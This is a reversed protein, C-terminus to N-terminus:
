TPSTAPARILQNLTAAFRAFDIPKPVHLQFGAALAHRRDEESALATLAMAPVNADAESGLGRIRRILSYGDEEPMAIDCVLVQPHFDEFIRMAESASSAARADAESIRLMEMLAERTGLDDEVVLVRLNRLSAMIAESAAADPQLGPPPRSGQELLRLSVTFTSGQGKGASDAHVTGGHGEVLHRVIALGLGLGGHARTQRHDEQVFRDFVQSLFLPEIGAGTDAVRIQAWGDASDVSVTVRGGPPTFKVANTLLNTVVQQLRMPDGLVPALSAELQVELEIGRKEASPTIADVAARIIGPLGVIRQEMKLKGTVIRSIDLLDDILQSLAKTAREIADGAKHSREEDMSGMRMLQSQLLMTSLPTRLEHSLTALFVDKAQNAREASTRAARAEELLQTREAESRDRETTDEIALLVVRTGNPMRVPRGSLLMTRAGLGPIERALRLKQFSQDSELVGDLAARLEPVDWVAGMIEYLRHNHCDTKPLGYAEDFGENCSLIELKHDLILLPIQVAEVTATAYDRAWEAAGLARKLV